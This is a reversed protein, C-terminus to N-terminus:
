YRGRGFKLLEDDYNRIGRAIDGPTLRADFADQQSEEAMWDHLHTENNVNHELEHIQNQLQNFALNLNNNQEYLEMQKDKMAVMVTAIQAMQEKYSINEKVIKELANVIVKQDDELKKIKLENEDM